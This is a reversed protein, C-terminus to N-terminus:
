MDPLLLDVNVLSNVDTVLANNLNLTRNEFSSVSETDPISTSYMIWDTADSRIIGGAEEMLKETEEEIAKIEQAFEKAEEELKSMKQAFDKKIYTTAAKMGLSAYDGLSSINTGGILVLAAVMFVTALLPNDIADILVSVITMIIMSVAMQIATTIVLVLTISQGGTVVSFLLAIIFLVVKFVGTQYWKTKIEKVSFVSIMVSERLFREREFIQIKETSKRSIPFFVIDQYEDDPDVPPKVATPDNPDAPTDAEALFGTIIAQKGQRTIVHMTGYDFVRIEGYLDESGPVSPDAYSLQVQIELVSYLKGFIEDMNGSCTGGSLDQELCAQAKPCFFYGHSNCTAKDWTPDYTGDGITSGSSTTNGGASAQPDTGTGWKAELHQNGYIVQKIPDGDTTKIKTQASSGTLIRHSSKNKERAVVGGKDWENKVRGRRIVHSWGNWGNVAVFSGCNFEYHYGMNPYHEIRKMDYGNFSVKPFLETMTYYLAVRNAEAISNGTASIGVFSDTINVIDQKQQNLQEVLFAHYGAETPYEQQLRQSNQWQRQYPKWDGSGMAPIDDPDLIAKSIDELSLNLAKLTIEAAKRKPDTEPKAFYGGPGSWDDKIPVMPFMDNPIIAGPGSYFSRDVITCGFGNNQGVKEFKKITHSNGRLIDEVIFEGYDRDIYAGTQIIESSFSDDHERQEMIPQFQAGGFLESAM